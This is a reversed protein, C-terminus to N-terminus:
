SWTLAFQTADSEHTFKWVWFLETTQNHYRFTVSWTKPTVHDTCWAHMLDYRRDYPMHVQHPKPKESAYHHRKTM